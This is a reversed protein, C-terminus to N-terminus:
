KKKKYYGVLECQVLVHGQMAKELSAKTAPHMEPLVMDLAYLKHFYQTDSEEENLQAIIEETAQRMEEVNSRPYHQLETNIKAWVNEIINLDPSNPPWTLLNIRARELM